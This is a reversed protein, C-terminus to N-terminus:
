EVEEQKTEEEAKGEEPTPNEAESPAASKATSSAGAKMCTLITEALDLKKTLGYIGTVLSQAQEKNDAMKRKLKRELDTTDAKLKDLKQKEENVKGRKKPPLSEANRTLAAKAEDATIMLEKLRFLDSNVRVEVEKSEHKCAVLSEDIQSIMAEAEEKLAPDCYKKNVIALQEAIGNLIEDLNKFSSASYTQLHNAVKDIRSLTKSIADEPAEERAATGTM